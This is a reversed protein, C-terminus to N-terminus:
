MRVDPCISREGGSGPVGQATHVGLRGDWGEWERLAAIVPLLQRGQKTIKYDFCRLDGECQSRDILGLERLDALRRALINPAIPLAALLAKFRVLGADIEDIIHFSWYDCAVSATKSRTITYRTGQLQRYGKAKRHDPKM